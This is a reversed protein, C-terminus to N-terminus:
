PLLVFEPPSLDFSIHGTNYHVALHNWFSVGYYIKSM